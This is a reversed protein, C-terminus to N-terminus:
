CVPVYVNYKLNNYKGSRTSDTVNTFNSNGMSYNRECSDECSFTMPCFSQNTPCSQSFPDVLIDGTDHWDFLARYSCDWDSPICHMYLSCFTENQGCEEAFVDESDRQYVLDPNCSLNMSICHLVLPCFYTGNDCMKKELPDNYKYEPYRASFNGADEAFIHCISNLTKSRSFFDKYKLVNVCAEDKESCCPEEADICRFFFYFTDACSIQVVHLNSTRSQERKYQFLLQRKIFLVWVLTIYVPYDNTFQEGM